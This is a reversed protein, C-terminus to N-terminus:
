GGFIRLFINTYGNGWILTCIVAQVTSFGFAFRWPSITILRLLKSAPAADYKRGEFLVHQLMKEKQRQTPRAAKEVVTFTKQKM